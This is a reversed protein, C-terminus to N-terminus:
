LNLMLDPKDTFIADAGLGKLWQADDLYNVTYVWNEVGHRKADSLLDKTFFGLHSNLSFAKLAHCVAAYDIPIGEILVGRKLKPMLRQSQYLQQHDFSSVVFQDWDLQQEVIWSQLCDIVPQITNQGKIEINLEAKNKILELVAPLQPIVEGNALKQQLLYETQLNAIVGSGSITRGLRRDHSIWLKGDAAIVDIEIFKIGTDLARQIAALSNEPFPQNAILPGGRHAIIKM